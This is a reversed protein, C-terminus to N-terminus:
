DMVDHMKVYLMKVRGRQSVVRAMFTWLIKQIIIHRSVVRMMWWGRKWELSFVKRKAFGEWRLKRKRRWSQSWPSGPSNVSVELRIRKKKETRRKWMKTKPETRYILSVLTLKQACKPIANRITDYLKQELALTQRTEDVRFYILMCQQLNACSNCFLGIEIRESNTLGISYNVVNFKWSIWNFNIENDCWM